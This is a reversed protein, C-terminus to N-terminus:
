LREQVPQTMLGPLPGGINQLNWIQQVFGEDLSAQLLAGSSAKLDNAFSALAILQM